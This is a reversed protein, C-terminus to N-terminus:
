RFKQKRIWDFLREADAKEFLRTGENMTAATGCAVGMMAMEEPSMGQQLAYVMGAVMSDGAGVTSRRPVTPAPIHRYGDKHVVMAGGPGLSVVVVDVKGRRLIEMSADDVEDLALEERGSLQSLERLNPKLLYLHGDLASSLAKGSTDLIYKSKKESVIAGIRAYFDEPVGPPLSGSAVVVGPFPDIARLDRLIQEQVEPTVTPGDLVLRYQKDSATESITVNERTEADIEIVKTPVDQEQLLDVLHQGNRGGALVMATVQGGLRRVGRAVNIGGGGPDVRAEGCRLKHDPVLRDVFFNKDLAPNLTITLLSSM